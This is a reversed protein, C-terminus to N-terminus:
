HWKNQIRETFGWREEELRALFVSTKGKPEMKEVVFQYQGRKEYLTVEGLALVALGDRVEFRIGRTSFRFIASSLQGDGDKLSFYAHGSPYLKYNSIEGEVWVREFTDELVQRVARNLESVTWIKKTEESGNLM